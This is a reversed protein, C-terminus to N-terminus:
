RPLGAESRPQGENRDSRIPPALTAELAMLQLQALNRLNAAQLPVFDSPSHPFSSSGRFVRFGSKTVVIDGRALTRDTLFMKLMGQDAPDTSYLPDRGGLGAGAIGFDLSSGGLVPDYGSGRQERPRYAPEPSRAPV